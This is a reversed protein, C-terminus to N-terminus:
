DVDTAVPFDAVKSSSGESRFISMERVVCKYKVLM